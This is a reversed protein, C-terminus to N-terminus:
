VCWYILYTCYNMQLINLKFHPIRHALIHTKVLNKFCTDSVDAPVNQSIYNWIHAGRYSFTRYNAEGWGIPTHICKSRRTNHTHIVSNYQFIASVPSPLVGISSKFMMLSIRQIVLKELYSINLKQFLPESDSPALYESFSITRISKKQIKVLPDLYSKLSSGWIEVCYILYSCYMNTLTTNDLYRCIKYLIGLSKSIDNKLYTIHDNWRLKNDIIDGLFKTSKVCQISTNQM